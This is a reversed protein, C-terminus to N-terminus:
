KKLFFFKIKEILSPCLNGFDNEWNRTLFELNKRAYKKFSSSQGLAASEGRINKKKWTVLKHEFICFRWLFHLYRKKKSNSFRTNPVCFFSEQHPVFDSNKGTFYTGSFWKINQRRLCIYFNGRIYSNM